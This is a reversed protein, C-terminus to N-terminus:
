KEVHAHGDAIGVEFGSNCYQAARKSIRSRDGM